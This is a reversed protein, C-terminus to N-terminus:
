GHQEVAPLAERKGTLYDSTERMCNMSLRLASAYGSAPRLPDLAADLGSADAREGGAVREALVILPDTEVYFEERVRFARVKAEDPHHYVRSYLEADIYLPQVLDLLRDLWEVPRSKDPSLTHASLLTRQFLSRVFEEARPRGSDFFAKAVPERSGDAYVRRFLHCDYYASVERVNVKAGQGKEVASVPVGMVEAALRRMLPKLTFDAGYHAVLGLAFALREADRGTIAVGGSLAARSVGLLAPVLTGGGRTIAGLRAIERHEEMAGSVRRDIREDLLSLRRTDDFVAWHTLLDSM